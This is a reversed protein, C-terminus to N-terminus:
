FLLYIISLEVKFSLEFLKATFGSNPLIEIIAASISIM